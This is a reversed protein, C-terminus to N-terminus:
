IRLRFLRCLFEFIIVQHLFLGKILGPTSKKEEILFYNLKNKKSNQNKSVNNDRAFNFQTIIFIIFIYYIFKARHQM